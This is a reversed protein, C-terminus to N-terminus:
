KEEDFLNRIWNLNYEFIRLSKHRIKTFKAILCRTKMVLFSVLDQKHPLFQPSELTLTTNKGYM